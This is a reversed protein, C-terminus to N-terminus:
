MACSGRRWGRVRGIARAVERVPYPTARSDGFLNRYFENMM